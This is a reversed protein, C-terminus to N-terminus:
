VEVLVGLIRVIDAFTEGECRLAYGVQLEATHDLSYCQDDNQSIRQRQLAASHDGMSTNFHMEFLDGTTTTVTTTCRIDGTFYASLGSDGLNVVNSSIQIDGEGTTNLAFTFNLDSEGGSTKSPLTQKASNWASLLMSLGQREPDYSM